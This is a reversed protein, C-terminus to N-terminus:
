ELNVYDLNEEDHNHPELSMDENIVLINCGHTAATCADVGILGPYKESIFIPNKEYTDYDKDELVNWFDSTHWHGVVLIKDKLIPDDRHTLYFNYPCVWMADAWADDRWSEKSDWDKRIDLVTYQDGSAVVPLGAHIFIYPGLKYYPVWEDSNLWKLIEKLKKNHFLKHDIKAQRKDEKAKFKDRAEFDDWPISTWRKFKEAKEKEYDLGLFMYLTQYTGNHFDHNLPKERKVLNKLLEEHNGRVLVRREIPLSRLYNYVELPQKGRDFIDGCVILVHDPNNEDFGAEILADHFIDFYGHIDSTCFYKKGM